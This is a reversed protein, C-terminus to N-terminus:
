GDGDTGLLLAGAPPVPQETPGRAPCRATLAVGDHTVTYVHQLGGNGDAVRQMAITTVAGEMTFTRGPLGPLTTRREDVPVPTPAVPAPAPALSPGSAELAVALQVHELDDGLRTPAAAAPALALGMPVALPRLGIEARMEELIRRRDRHDTGGTRM